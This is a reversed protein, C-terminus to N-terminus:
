QQLERSAMIWVVLASVGVVVVATVLMGFIMYRAFVRAKPWFLLGVPVVMTTALLPWLERAVRYEFLARMVGLFIPPVLAVFALGTFFGVIRTFTPHDRHWWDPHELRTGISGEEPRSLPQSDPAPQHTM